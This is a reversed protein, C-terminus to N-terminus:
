WDAYFSNNCCADMYRVSVIGAKDSKGRPDFCLFHVIFCAIFGSYRREWKEGKGFLLFLKNYVRIM